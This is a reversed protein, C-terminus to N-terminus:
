IHFMKIAEDKSDAWSTSADFIKSFGIIELINKVRSNVGCVIINGDSKLAKKRASVLSGLSSSCVYELDTFDLVIKFSSKLTDTLVSTFKASYQNNLKGTVTIVAVDNQFDVKFTAEEM